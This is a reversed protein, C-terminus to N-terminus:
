CKKGRLDFDVRSTGHMEGVSSTGRMLGVRSTGHMSGVRSTGHMEGVSSTDRMSGVFSNDRMAGVRSEGLMEEVLSEGLMEEVLSEGLMEEVLSTGHMAVIRANHAVGHSTGRLIWCWGELDSGDVPTMAEVIARLQSEAAARAADDLWLPIFEEDVRLTWSTFDGNPLYELRCLDALIDDRLGHQEILAEHSDTTAPDCYLTGNKTLVASLFNCM